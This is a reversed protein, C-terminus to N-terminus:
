YWCRFFKVSIIWSFQFMIDTCLYCSKIQFSHKDLTAGGQCGQRSSRTWLICEPLDRWLWLGANEASFLSCCSWWSFFDPWLLRGQLVAPPTLAHSDGLPIAWYIVSFLWFIHSKGQSLQSFNQMLLLSHLAHTIGGCQPDQHGNLEKCQANPQPHIELLEARM